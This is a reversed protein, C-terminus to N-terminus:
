HPKRESRVTPILTRQQCCRLPQHCDRQPHRDLGLYLLSVGPEAPGCTGHAPTSADDQSWDRELCLIHKGLSSLDALYSEQTLLITINSDELMFALRDRPYAPDLPVYARGAKLISLIGVVLAPSRDACLGVRVEPGVGLRQLTHALSTARLNIEQYSLRENGYIVALADPFNRAHQEFFQHLCLEQPYEAATDNWAAVVRVYASADFPFPDSLTHESHSQM